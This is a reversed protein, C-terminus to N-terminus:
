ANEGDWRSAAVVAELLVRTPDEKDDITTIIAEVGELM